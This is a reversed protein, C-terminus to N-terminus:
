DANSSAPSKASWVDRCIRCLEAGRNGITGIDRQLSLWVFPAKLGDDTLSLCVDGNMGTTDRHLRREIRTPLRESM